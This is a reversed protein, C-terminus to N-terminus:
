SSKKWMKIGCLTSLSFFVTPFFSLHPNHYHEGKNVSSAKWKNSIERLLILLPSSFCVIFLEATHGIFSKVTTVKDKACYCTIGTASIFKLWFRLYAQLVRFRVNPNSQNTRINEPSVGKMAESLHISKHMVPLYKIPNFIILLPVCLYNIRHPM